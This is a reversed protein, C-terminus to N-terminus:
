IVGYDTYYLGIVIRMGILEPIEYLHPGDTRLERIIVGDAVTSNPTYNDNDKDCLIALRTKQYLDKIAKGDRDNKAVIEIELELMRRAPYGLFNRSNHEVINDRGEFIYIANVSSKDVLDNSNRKLTKLSLNDKNDILRQKINSIGLERYDIYAM